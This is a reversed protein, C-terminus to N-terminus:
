RWHKKARCKANVEPAYFILLSMSKIKIEYLLDFGKLPTRNMLIFFLLLKIILIRIGTATPVTDAKKLPLMDKYEVIFLGFILGGPNIKGMTHIMRYMKIPIDANIM